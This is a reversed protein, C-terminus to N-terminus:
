MRSPHRSLSERLHRISANQGAGKPTLRVIARAFAKSSERLEQIAKAQQATKIKPASFLLDIDVPM